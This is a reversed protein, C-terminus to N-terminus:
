PEPNNVLYPNKKVASNVSSNSVPQRVQETSATKVFNESGLKQSFNPNAFGCFRAINTMTKDPVNVLQEYKVSYISNRYKSLWHTMLHKELKIFEAINKYSWSWTLGQSFFTKFCSWATDQIDREIYIISANPFVKLIIDLYRANNLSKDVIYKNFGFKEKVINCYDQKIKELMKGTAMNSLNDANCGIASNNLQPMCALAIANSEGTPIVNDYSAIM